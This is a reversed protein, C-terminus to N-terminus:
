ADSAQDSGGGGGGSGGGGGGGGGGGAEWPLIAPVGRPRFRGEGELRRRRVEEDESDSSDPPLAGGLLLRGTASLPEAPPPPKAKKAKKGQKGRRGGEEKEGNRPGLTYTPRLTHLMLSASERTWEQLRWLLHLSYM